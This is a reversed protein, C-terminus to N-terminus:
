RRIRPRSNASDRMESRRQTSNGRGMLYYLPQTSFTTSCNFWLQVSYKDIAVRPAGDLHESGISGFREVAIGCAPLVRGLIESACDDTSVLLALFTM